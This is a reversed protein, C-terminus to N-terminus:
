REGALSPPELLTCQPFRRWGHLCACLLNASGLDERVCSFPSEQYVYAIVEGLGAIQLISQRRNIAKVNHIHTYPLVCSFTFINRVYGLNEVAVLMKRPSHAKELASKEKPM